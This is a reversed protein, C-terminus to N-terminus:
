KVIILDLRFCYCFSFCFSVCLYLCSDNIQRKNTLCFRCPLGDPVFSAAAAAADVAANRGSRSMGAAVALASFSRRWDASLLETSAEPPTTTTVSSTVIVCGSVSIASDDKGSALPSDNSAKSQQERTETKM